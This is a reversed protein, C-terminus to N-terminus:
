EKEGEIALENERVTLVVGQGSHFRGSLVGEAVADEVKRRLCRRLPRAGNVPDCSEEALKEVAAEDARLTLGLPRMRRATEGLM